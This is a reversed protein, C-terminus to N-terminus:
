VLRRGELDTDDIFEGGSSPSRPAFDGGTGPGHLSHGEVDNEDIFEGGSRPSRPAFDGGTGPGHPTLEPAEPPMGHGETDPGKVDLGDDAPNRMGEHPRKRSKDM